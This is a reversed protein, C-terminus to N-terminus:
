SGATDLNALTQHVYHTDFYPRISIIRDGEVTFRVLYNNEYVDGRRTRGRATYEVAVEEGEEMANHVEVSYGSDPDFESVLADMLFQVAEPISAYRPERLSKQFTWVAKEDCLALATELEGAWFAELFRVAIKKSEPM